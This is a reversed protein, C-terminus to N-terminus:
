VTLLEAHVGEAHAMARIEDKYISNMVIIHTPQIKGLQHPGIIEQGTGAMFKGHKRPNIDVVYQIEETIELMNVFSTGRAGAGWVVTSGGESRLADLRGHWSALRTEFARGFADIRQALLGTNAPQGHGRAATEAHIGTFLTSYLPVTELVDFGAREFALTLPERAFYSCHEYIIEWISADALIHELSPVEFFVPIRRDGIVERLATLFGVPDPIHEFVQRCVILDAPVDRYRDGYLDAVLRVRDDSDDPDAAPDFGVGRNGGAQCLEKLFGAKGAGLEIVDKGELSYRGVLNKVLSTQYDQFVDSFDLANDYTADYEVVAPDFAVNTVFGCETCFSLEITGKPCDVADERTNWLVGVHAPANDVALLQVLGETSCVPCTRSLSDM